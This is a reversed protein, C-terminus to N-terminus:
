RRPPAREPRAPPPPLSAMWEALRAEGVLDELEAHMTERFAEAAEHAAERAVADPATRVAEHIARGEAAHRAGWAELLEVDQATLGLEEAHDVLVQHLPPPPGPPRAWATTALWMGLFGTGVWRIVVNM